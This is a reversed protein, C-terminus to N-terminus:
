LYHPYHHSLLTTPPFYPLPPSFLRRHRAAILIRRCLIDSLLKLRRSELASKKHAPQRLNHTLLRDRGRRKLGAPVRGRTRSVFLGGLVEFNHFQHSPDGVSARSLPAGRRVPCSSAGTGHQFLTRGTSRHDPGRGKRQLHRLFSQRTIELLQFLRIVEDGVRGVRGLASRPLLAHGGCVACVEVLLVPDYVETENM